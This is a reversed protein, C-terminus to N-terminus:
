NKQRKNIVYNRIRDKNKNIFIFLYIFDSRFYDINIIEGQGIWIDNLMCDEYKNMMIQQSEILSQFFYNITGGTSIIM